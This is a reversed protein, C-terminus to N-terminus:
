VSETGNNNENPKEIHNIISKKATNNIHYETKEDIVPKYTKLEMSFSLEPHLDNQSYGFPVSKKGDFSEPFSVAARLREFGRYSFYFVRTKYLEDAITDAINMRQTENSCKIKLDFKYTMPIWDGLSTFERMEDAFDGQVEKNYVIRNFGAILNSSDIDFGNYNIVGRPIRRLNGDIKCSLENKYKDHDLFLDKMFQEEGAQSVFFPVKILTPLNDKEEEIELIDYLFSSLGVLVRHTFIKQHTRKIM